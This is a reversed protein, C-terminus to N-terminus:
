ANQPSSRGRTAAHAAENCRSPYPGRRATGRHVGSPEAGSSTVRGVSDSPMDRQINAARDSPPPRASGSRGRAPTCSRRFLAPSRAHSRTSSAFTVSPSRGCSRAWRRRRTRGPSPEGMGGHRLLAMDDISDAGPSWEAPRCAIRMMSRWRRGALPRGGLPPRGPQQQNSRRLDWGGGPLPM